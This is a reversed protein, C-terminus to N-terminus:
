SLPNSVEFGLRHRMVAEDIAQVVDNQDTKIKENAWDILDSEELRFAEILDSGFKTVATSNLKPTKNFFLITLARILIIKEIENECKEYIKSVPVLLRILTNFSEQEDREWDDIYMNMNSKMELDASKRYGDLLHRIFIECPNSINKRIGFRSLLAYLNQISGDLGLEIPIDINQSAENRFDSPKNFLAIVSIANGASNVQGLQLVSAVLSQPSIPLPHGAQFELSECASQFGRLDIQFLVNRNDKFYNIARSAQSILDLYMDIASTITPQSPFQVTGPQSSFFNFPACTYIGVTMGKDLVSSFLMDVIPVKSVLPDLPNQNVKLPSLAFLVRPVCLKYIEGTMTVPAGRKVRSGQGGLIAVTSFNKNFHLVIGKLPIESATSTIIVISGIAVGDISPIRCVEDSLIESVSLESSNKTLNRTLISELAELSPESTTTFVRSSVYQRPIHRSVSSWIALRSTRQFLRTLM